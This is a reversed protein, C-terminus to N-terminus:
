LLQRNLMQKFIGEEQSLDIFSGTQVIKGKYVVYIRTANKITSLRHAIIVRTANIEDLRRSVEAQTANDLASTAEDFLLIKPKTILARSILLRQAQGISLTTGGSQVFSQLGMPFNVVDKDFGSLKLAEDIEQRTYIGGCVINEYLSGTFLSGHQLVTGINRRVDTLDCSELAKGDYYINGSVPIEFGLLLRVITSKGSGSPGVFAILEGPDAHFSINDLTMPGEKEYRFSLSDVVIHGSLKEIREKGAPNEPNTEWVVKAKEWLPLLRSLSNFVNIGDFVAMSFPFFAALFGIFDGITINGKGWYILAAFLIANALVPLTATVITIVNEFQREKYSLSQFRTTEKSWFGFARAEAGSVRIKSIGSILQIVTSRIKGMSDIMDSAIKHKLVIFLGAVFLGFVIIAMGLFALSISFYLMALFYFFSFVLSFSARIGNGGIQNKIETFAQARQILNGVTFRRFFSVPLNLLRYWYASTVKIDILQLLRAAMYSRVFLFISASITALFLGIILEPMLEPNYGGIAKDFLIKILFPPILSLLAGGVGIIFVSVLDNYHGKLVFSNIKRFNLREEPFTPYFLYANKYFKQAEEKTIIKKQYTGPDRMFYGGYRRHILPVPTPEDGYFGILNLCDKKWWDTELNVLRFGLKSARCLAAIKEYYTLNRLDEKPERFVIGMKYGLIQCARLLPDDTPFVAWPEKKKLISGIKKFSYVLLNRDTKIRLKADEIENKEKVEIIKLLISFIYNQFQAMLPAKPLEAIDETAFVMITSKEQAKAWSANTLPFFPHSPLLECTKLDFVRLSGEIVKVWRVENKEEPFHPMSASLTEHVEADITDGAKVHYNIKDPNFFELTTDFKHIWNLLASKDNLADLNKQVLKSHSNAVAIVSYSPNQAFGLILDEKNVTLIYTLNGKVSQIFIELTGEEVIWFSAPDNLSMRQNTEIIM